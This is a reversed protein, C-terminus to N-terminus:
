SQEEWDSERDDTETDSDKIGETAHKRRMHQLYYKRCSFIKKCLDCGVKKTICKEVHYRYDEQTALTEDCNACVMKAQRETM